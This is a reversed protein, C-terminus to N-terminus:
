DIPGSYQCEAGDIHRYGAKIAVKIAEVLSRDPADDNKKIWATGTGYGIKFYTLLM